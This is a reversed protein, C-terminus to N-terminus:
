RSALSSYAAQLSTLLGRKYSLESVDGVFYSKSVELRGIQTKTEQIGDLLVREFGELYKSPVTYKNIKMVM